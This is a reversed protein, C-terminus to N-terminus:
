PCFEASEDPEHAEVVDQCMVAYGPSSPIPVGHFRGFSNIATQDALIGAQACFLTLELEQGWWGAGAPDVAEVMSRTQAPAAPNPVDPWIDAYLYDVRGLRQSLARMMDADLADGQVIEIKAALKPRSHLYGDRIMGILEEDIEVVVVRDVEPKAAAALAFMGMGLGATLVTGRALDVHRAHSELELLGSSMWIQGDKKLVHYDVNIVERAIYGETILGYRREISWAGVSGPRYQVAVAPLGFGYSATLEDSRRQHISNMHKM